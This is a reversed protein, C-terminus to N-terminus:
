LLYKIKLTYYEIVTHVNLNTLVVIRASWIFGVSITFVNHVHRTQFLDIYHGTHKFTRTTKVLTDSNCLSANKTPNLIFVLLTCM